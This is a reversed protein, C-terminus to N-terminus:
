FYYRAGIGGQVFAFSSPVLGIGPVIEAFFGLPATRMLWEAGLPIRVGFGTSDGNSTFYKGNPTEQIFLVAGLGAYPELRRLFENSTGFAGHFHLLYDGYILIFSDLSWAFGADIAQNPALWFKGTFGTPQGLIFGVGDSKTAPRDFADAAAPMELAAISVAFLAIVSFLSLALSQILTETKM